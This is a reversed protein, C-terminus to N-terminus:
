ELDDYEVECFISDKDMGNTMRLEGTQDEEKGFRYPNMSANYETLMMKNEGNISVCTLRGISTKQIGFWGKSNIENQSDVRGNGM